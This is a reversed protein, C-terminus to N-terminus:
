FQDRARSMPVPGSLQCLATAAKRGTSLRRVMWEGNAVHGDPNEARVQARHRGGQGGLLDCGLGGAERQGKQTGQEAVAM